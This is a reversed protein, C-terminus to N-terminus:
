LDSGRVLGGPTPVRVGADDCAVFGAVDAITGPGTGHRFANPVSRVAGARAVDM